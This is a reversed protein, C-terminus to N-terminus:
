MIAKTMFKVSDKAFSIQCQVLIVFFSTVALVAAWFSHVTSTPAADVAIVAPAAMLVVIVSLVGGFFPDRALVLIM